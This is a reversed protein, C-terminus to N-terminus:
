SLGNVRMKSTKVYKKKKVSFKERAMKEMEWSIAM